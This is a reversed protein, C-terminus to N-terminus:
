DSSVPIGLRDGVAVWDIPREPKESMDPSTTTPGFIPESAANPGGGPGTGSSVSGATPTGNVTTGRPSYVLTDDSDSISADDVFLTRGGRRLDATIDGYQAELEANEIRMNGSSELRIDSYLSTLSANTADLPGGGNERASLTVTGFYSGVNAGRASVSNGSVEANGFVGIVRAGDINATGTATVSSQGAALVEQGSLDADGDAAALSVSGSDSQFDTEATISGATIDIGGSNNVTGVDSPVVLSASADDFSYLDSEIFTPESPDWQGNGNLDDYARPGPPGGGFSAAATVSGTGLEDDVFAAQTPAGGAFTAATVLTVGMVFVLAWFRSPIM